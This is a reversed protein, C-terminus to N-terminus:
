NRQRKSLLGCLGISILGIIAKPEPTSVNENQIIFTYNTDKMSTTSALSGSLTPSDYSFLIELDGSLDLSNFNAVIFPSALSPLFPSFASLDNPFGFQNDINEALMDVDEKQVQNYWPQNILTEEFENFTGEITIVDYITGGINLNVALTPSALFTSICTTITVFSFTNVLFFDRM